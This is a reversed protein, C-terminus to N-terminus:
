NGLSYTKRLWNKNFDVTGKFVPLTLDAKSLSVYDVQNTIRGNEDKVYVPQFTENSDKKVKIMKYRPNSEGDSLYNFLGQTRLSEQYEKSLEPIQGKSVAYKGNNLYPSYHGGKGQIAKLDIGLRAADELVSDPVVFNGLQTATNKITSVLYRRLEQMKAQSYGKNEGLSALTTQVGKLDQNSIRASTGEAAKVLARGFLQRLVPLGAVFDRTAGQEQNDKFWALFDTGLYKIGAGVIPGRVLGQVGSLEAAVSMRDLRAVADLAGSFLQAAQVSAPDNQRKELAATKDAIAKSVVQLQDDLRPTSSQSLKGAYSTGKGLDEAIKRRQINGRDMGKVLTARVAVDDGDGSPPPANTEPGFSVGALYSLRLKGVGSTFNQGRVPDPLSNLVEGVNGQQQFLVPARKYFATVAAETKAALPNPAPGASAPRLGLQELNQDFFKESFSKNLDLLNQGGKLAKLANFYGNTIQSTFKAKEALTLAQGDARAFPYNEQSPDLGKAPDYNVPVFKIGFRGLGLRDQQGGLNSLYGALTAKFDPSELGKPTAATGTTIKRPSLGQKTLAEQSFINNTGLEVFKGRNPGDVIARYVPTRTIGDRTVTFVSKDPKIFNFEGAQLNPAGAEADPVGLGFKSLDGPKVIMQNQLIPQVRLTQINFPAGTGKQQRVQTQGKGGVQPVFVWKNEAGKEIVYYPTELLDAAKTPDVMLKEALARQEKASAGVATYAAMKRQRDEQQEALRTAARQKMLPGAITSIDGALPAVLTRGVAGLANEGPQPAAGMSAFGRGMLSLAFQLKALDNAEQNQASYDTTGLYAKLEANKAEVDAMNTKFGLDPSGSGLTRFINGLETARPNAPRLAM